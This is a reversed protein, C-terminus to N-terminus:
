IYNDLFKVLLKAIREHGLDNPHLGDVFYLENLEQVRTSMGSIAWLDLVPISYKDAVQRIADVYNKLPSCPIGIENITVDESERHLPTLVVIVSNPYKKLLKRYLINLAGYFSYETNDTPLGLPADGHGFDNTGGFVVVVDADDRMNECRQVFTQDYIEVASPVRNKSIRTGGIGYNFVNAGTLKSFQMLYNKEECSAGAGQTISDGLFVVNKNKLQM